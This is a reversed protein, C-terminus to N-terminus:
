GPAVGKIVILEGYAAGERLKRAEQYEPSHHFERARAVSPFQLIIIRRTEDRGEPTLSSESRAIIKGGYRQIVSPAAKQYHQYQDRDRIDVRAISYAPMM